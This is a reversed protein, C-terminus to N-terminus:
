THYSTIYHATNYKSDIKCKNTGRDTCRMDEEEETVRERERESKGEKM